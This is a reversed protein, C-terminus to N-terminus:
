KRRAIVSKQKKRSDEFGQGRADKNCLQLSLRSVKVM